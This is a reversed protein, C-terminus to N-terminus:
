RETDDAPIRLDLLKRRAAQKSRFLRGVIHAAPFQDRDGSHLAQEFCCVVVDPNCKMGCQVRIWNFMHRCMWHDECDALVYLCPVCYDHAHDCMVLIITQAFPKPTVKFDSRHARDCVRRFNDDLSYAVNFQLFDRADDQSVHQDVPLEIARLANGGNSDNRTRHILRVAEDRRYM